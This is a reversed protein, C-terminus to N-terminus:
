RTHSVLQIKLPFAKNCFSCQFTTAGLVHSSMIRENIMVRLMAEGSHVLRFHYKLTTSTNFGKGCAKCKYSRENLHSKMHRNLYSKKLFKKSCVHCTFVKSGNHILEHSKLHGATYFTKGCTSCMHAKNIARSRQRRAKTKDHLLVDNSESVAQEKINLEQNKRDVTEEFTLSTTLDLAPKADEFVEDFCSLLEPEETKIIDGAESPSNWSLVPKQNIFDAHHERLIRDSKQCTTRIEQATKLKEFCIRCIM